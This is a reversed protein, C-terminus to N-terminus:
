RQRTRRMPPGAPCTLAQGLWLVAASTTLVAAGSAIDAAGIVLGAPSLPDTRRRHAGPLLGGGNCWLCPGACRGGCCTRQQRGAGAAVPLRGGHPGGLADAVHDRFRLRCPPRRQRGDGAIRGSEGGTGAANTSRVASDNHRELITLTQLENSQCTRTCAPLCDTRQRVANPVPLSRPYLWPKAQTPAAVAWSDSEFRAISAVRFAHGSRVAIRPDVHRTQESLCLSSPAM